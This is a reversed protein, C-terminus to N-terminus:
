HILSHTVLDGISSDQVALFVEAGHRDQYDHHNYSEKANVILIIVVILPFVVLFCWCGYFLCPLGQNHLFIIAVNLVIIIQRHLDPYIM